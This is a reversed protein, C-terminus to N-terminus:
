KKSHQRGAIKSDMASGASSLVLRRRQCKGSTRQARIDVEPQFPRESPLWTKSRNFQWCTVVGMHGFGGLPRDPAAFFIGTFTATVNYFRCSGSCEDDSVGTLREASLRRKFLELEADHKLVVQRGEIRLVSGAPRSQDNVTSMTPTPEDGGYMLWVPRSKEDCGASALTFNEFAISVKARVNVIKESYEQPHAILECPSVPIPAQPQAAAAHLALLLGVIPISFRFHV